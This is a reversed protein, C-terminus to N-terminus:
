SSPFEDVFQKADLGLFDAYGCLFTRAYAPAPLRDFREEELAALFRTGIRTAREVDGLELGQRVRAARCLSEGIEFV